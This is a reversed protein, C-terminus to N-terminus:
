DYDEFSIVKLKENLENKQPMPTMNEIEERRNGEKTKVKVWRGIKIVLAVLGVTIGVGVVALIEGNANLPKQPEPNEQNSQTDYEFLFLGEPFFKDVLYIKFSHNGPVKYKYDLDFKSYSTFDERTFNTTELFLKDILVDAILSSNFVPQVQSSFKRSVNVMFSTSESNQIPRFDIIQEFNTQFSVPVQGIIKSYDYIMIMGEVNPYFKPDEPVMFSIQYSNDFQKELNLTGLQDSEFIVSTLQGYETFMLNSFSATITNVSGLSVSEKYVCQIYIDDNRAM